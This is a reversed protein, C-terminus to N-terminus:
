FIARSMRASEAIIYLSGFVAPSLKDYCPEGKRGLNRVFPLMETDERRQRSSMKNESTVNMGL